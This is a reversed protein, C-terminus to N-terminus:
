NLLRPAEGEGDREEDDGQAVPGAHHHVVRWGGEERVFLNTASMAGQREGDGESVTELCVVCAVDGLVAVRADRVQVDPVGSDFIARWSRLVVDRGELPEWGPHVCLVPSARSWLIDMAVLDQARFAAYFADNVLLVAREDPTV